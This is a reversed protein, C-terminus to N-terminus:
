NSTNVTDSLGRPTVLKRRPSATTGGCWARLGQSLLHGRHWGCSASRWSCASAAWTRGKWPRLPVAPSHTHKSALGGTLTRPGGGSSRTLPLDLCQPLTAPVVLTFTLVHSDGTRALCCCVLSVEKHLANDAPLRATTCCTEQINAQTMPKAHKNVPVLAAHVLMSASAFFFLPLGYVNSVSLHPMRFDPQVLKAM